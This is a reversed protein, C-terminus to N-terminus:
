AAPAQPIPLSQGSEVKGHPRMRNAVYVEFVLVLLVVILVIDWLEAGKRMRTVVQQVEEPTAAYRMRRLPLTDRLKDFTALETTSETTDRNVAFCFERRPQGSVIRAFYVGPWYTEDFTAPAPTKNDDPKGSDTSTPKVTKTKSGEDTSFTVQWEVAGTRSDSPPAVAAGETFNYSQGTTEAMHLVLKNILPMFLNTVPLSSWDRKASVSFACTLGKGVSREVLLPDGGELRVLVRAEPHARANFKIHQYIKPAQYVLPKAALEGIVPHGADLWGIREAKIRQDADGVVQVLEAPLLDLPIAKTGPKIRDGMFWIVRGGGALYKRMAEAQDPSLTGINACIVVRYSALNLEPTGLQDLTFQTPELAGMPRLVVSLFMGDDQTFVPHAEPKLICVDVRRRVNFAFFARNDQSLSDEEVIQLRAHHSGEENPGFVHPFAQMQAVAGPGLDLRPSTGIKRGDIHLEVHRKVPQDSQNQVKAEIRIPLGVVQGMGSLRMDVLAANQYDQRGVNVLVVPIQLGRKEEGGLADFREKLGQWNQAQMDTLCYIEAAGPDVNKLIKHARMFGATLDAKGAAPRVKDLVQRLSDMNQYPRDELGSPPGSTLLLATQDGDKLQDLADRVIQKAADLRTTGAHTMGMSTSNDLIFVVTLQRQGGFVSGTGKLIPQSLAMALLVLAAVRLILLLLDQVRKRRATHEVSLKLFRLTAFLVQPARRKHILHIMIPILGALAALVFVPAGLYPM